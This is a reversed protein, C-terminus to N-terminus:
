NAAISTVYVLAGFYPTDFYQMRGTSIQRNQELAFVGWTVPKDTGTEMATPMDNGVQFAAENAVQQKRERFELDLFLHLFRSRRLQLSGDIQYFTSRYAAFPDEATLDAYVITTPPRLQTDIIQQDHIRMPPYYDVRNQQWAAYVLPRYGKSSRLRRWANDMEDSKQTVAILDDPLDPRWVESPAAPVNGPGTASEAPSSETPGIEEPNPFQSFSRLDTVETAQTEVLLNRFVIIEVRYAGSDALAASSALILLFTLLSSM